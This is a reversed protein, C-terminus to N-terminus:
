LITKVTDFGYVASLVDRAKDLNAITVNYLNDGIYGNIETIQAASIKKNLNYNLARVFGLTESLTHNRLPDDAFNAKAKNIYHIASAAAVKEWTEAVAKKAEDRATNDKNTIAARGKILADMMTKNISLVADNTNCYKGWYKNATNTPFDISVSFYGFAEDWNHEMETGKGATVTTNDKTAINELYYSIAQYYFVAGMIGKEILEAYDIGKASCLYKKGSPGTVVGAVGNSGATKSKSALAISDFYSEILAQDTTFTKDRLQKSSTNLAVNSFPNAANAYMNKLKVADVVTGKTNGTELYAVMEDLMAIRTLQGSYDVNDFNYATPITYTPKGDNQMEPEKNCAMLLASCAIVVSVKTYFPRTIM